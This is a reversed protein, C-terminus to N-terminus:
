WWVDLLGKERERECVCVCVCVCVSVCVCVCVCEREREREAWLCQKSQVQTGVKEERILFQIKKNEIYWNQSLYTM